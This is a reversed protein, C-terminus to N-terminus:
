VLVYRANDVWCSHLQSMPRCSYGRPAQRHDRPPAPLGWRTRGMVIFQGWLKGRSLTPCEIIHPSPLPPPERTVSWLIAAALLGSTKVTDDPYFSSSVPPAHQQGCQVTVNGALPPTPSLQLCIPLALTVSYSFFFHMRSPFRIM